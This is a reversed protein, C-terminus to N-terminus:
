GVEEATTACKECSALHTELRHLEAATLRAAPDADLDRQIRRGAWHCIWMTSLM